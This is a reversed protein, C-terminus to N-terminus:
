KVNFEDLPERYITAMEDKYLSMNLSMQAQRELQLYM